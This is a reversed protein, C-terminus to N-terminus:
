ICPPPPPCYLVKVAHRVEENNNDYRPVSLRRAFAGRKKLIINRQDTFIKGKKQPGDNFAKVVIVEALFM